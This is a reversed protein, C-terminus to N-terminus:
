DSLATRAAHRRATSRIHQAIDPLYDENWLGLPFHRPIGFQENRYGDFEEAMGILISGVIAHSEPPWGRAYDDRAITRMHEYGLPCMILMTRVRRRIAEFLLAAECVQKKDGVITVLAFPLVFNRLARTATETVTAEEISRPVDALRPLISEDEVHMCLSSMLGYTSPHTAVVAFQGRKQM